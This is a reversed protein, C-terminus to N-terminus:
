TCAPLTNALNFHFIRHGSWGDVLVKKFDGRYHCLAGGASAV